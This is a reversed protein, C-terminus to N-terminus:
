LANLQKATRLTQPEKNEEQQPKTHQLNVLKSLATKTQNSMYYSMWQLNLILFDKKEQTESV